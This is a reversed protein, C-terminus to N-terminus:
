IGLFTYESHCLDRKRLKRAWPYHVLMLQTPYAALLTVSTAITTFGLLLFIKLVLLIPSFVVSIAVLASAWVYDRSRVARQLLVIAGLCVIMDLLFEYQATYRSFFSAILLVPLSAWRITANMEFM